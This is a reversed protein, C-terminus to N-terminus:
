PSTAILGRDGIVVLHDGAWIVDNLHYPDAGFLVSNYPTEEESWLMGDLSRFVKGNNGVAVFESGTWEVANLTSFTGTVQQTWSVGGNDSTIITGDSGVIVLLSPTAVVSNLSTTVGSDRTTWNIGDPSTLVNGSSGCALFQSGTWIADKIAATASNTRTTWNIGDPSTQIYGSSVGGGVAVMLTPSSAIGKNSGVSSIETWILGDPSTYIGVNAGIQVLGVFSDTVDSWMVDIFLNNDIGGYEWTLGNDTSAVSHDSLGIAVLRGDSPSRAISRFIQDSSRLAWNSGDASAYVGSNSGGTGGGALYESGTYLVSSLLGIDNTGSSIIQDWNFGDLSTAVSYQGVAVWQGDAHTIDFYTGINGVSNWIEGDSSTLIESSPFTSLVFLSSTAGIAQFSDTFGTDILTWNVGNDSTILTGYSGVAVLKTGNWAVDNLTETTPTSQTTWNEGDTSTEVTGAEGVAVLMTDTKIVAYLDPEGISSQSSWNIGDTSTYKASSRGVGIFQDGDWIVDYISTFADQQQWILANDSTFIGGTGAMVFTTGNFALQTSMEDVGNHRTTWDSAPTTSGDSPPTTGGDNGDGSSDGEGSASGGCASILAFVTVLSFVKIFNSM